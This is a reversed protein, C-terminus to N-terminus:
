FDEAAGCVKTRRIHTIELPVNWETPFAMAPADPKQNEVFSIGVITGEKNKLFFRIGQFRCTDGAWRRTCSVCKPFQENKYRNSMCRAFQLEPHLPESGDGCSEGDVIHLAKAPDSGPQSYSVHPMLRASQAAIQAAENRKKASYGRKSASGAAPTTSKPKPGPKAKQKKAQPGNETSDSSRKQANQPINMGSAPSPPATFLVPGPHSMPYGMLAPAEGMRPQQSDPVTARAVIRTSAREGNQWAPTSGVSSSTAHSPTPGPGSPLMTEYPHGTSAQNQQSLTRLPGSVSSSGVASNYSREGSYMPPIESTGYPWAGSRNFNRSLPPLADAPFVSPFSAFDPRQTVAQGSEWSASRLQFSSGPNSPDPIGNRENRAMDNQSAPFSGNHGLTQSRSPSESLEVRSTTNALPNLLQSISTRKHADNLAANM